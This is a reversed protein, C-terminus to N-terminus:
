RLRRAVVIGDSAFVKGYGGQPGVLREYLPRQDGVSVTYRVPNHSEVRDIYVAVTGDSAPTLTLESRPLSATGFKWGAPTLTITAPVGPAFRLQTESSGPGTNVSPSATAAIDIHQANEALLVRIVPTGPPVSTHANNQSCALPCLALSGAIMMRALAARRTFRHTLKM